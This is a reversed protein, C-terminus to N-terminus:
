GLGAGGRKDIVNRLQRVNGPWQYQLLKRRADDSLRLNPRGQLRFHDLFHDTLVEVDTGRDRLPPM